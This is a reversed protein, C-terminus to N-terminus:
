FSISNGLYYDIVKSKFLMDYKAAIMDFEAKNVNVLANNYDWFNNAGMKFKQETVKLVEKDSAYALTAYKHKNIAATYDAFAQAIIKKLDKKAQELQLDYNEFNVKAQKVAIRNNFNNFITLQLSFGFTQNLNDLIQKNFSYNKLIEERHPAIVPFNLGTVVGIEDVGKTEYHDLLQRGSSYSTGVADFLSLKPYYNGKAILINQYAAGKQLEAVKISPNIQLAKKYVEEVNYHLIQISDAKSYPSIAILEENSDSEMFQKLNLVAINLQNQIESRNYLINALQSEAAILDAQVKYGVSINKKVNEINLMQLEVQADVATMLDQDSLLEIFTTVVNLLLEDKNKETNNHDAEFLLKNKKIQNIKQKGAFILFQLNISQNYNVKRETTYQNTALDISRGVNFSTQPSSTLTPFLAYKSQQLNTLSIEENLKSIKFQVNNKLSREIVQQVTIYQQSFCPINAGLVITM